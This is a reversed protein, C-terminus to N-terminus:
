DVSANGNADGSKVGIFDPLRFGPILTFTFSNDRSEAPWPQTPDGLTTAGSFFQWSPVGDDGFDPTITLILKRIRIMDLTTLSNSNNVDCALIKYPEMLETGLVQKQMSILDSISVGNNFPNDKAFDMRVESASPMEAPIPVRGDAGTVTTAVFVDDAYFSVAVGAVPEDDDTAVMPSRLQGLADLMMTDTGLPDLWDKLRAGADPGDWALSLRGFYATANDCATSGADGHLQAVVRHNGDLMASGSSGVELTGDTYLLRYHHNPPTTVGNNWNISNGFITAANTSTAFKQIDGRPHHVIASTTPPTGSRDWGMFHLEMDAADEPYLDLLLFDMAQRGALSDCGLISQFSPETVPNTCDDSAYYFDFRWMDYEPTFGDMCHFASLFLLRGDEATNNMLTGSCYGTGEEVVVIIRAVANREAQWDAAEPCAVNDHCANSTGFGFNRANFSEYAEDKYVVDIRWLHFPVTFDDAPAQYEIIAVEGRLIGTMFRDSRGQSERTYAGLVQGSEPQYVFLQAGEPLNFDEYFLLLGRAEPVRIRLQWIQRGDELITWNGHSNIDIDAPQSAAFRNTPAAQEAAQLATIDPGALRLNPAPLLLSPDSIGLPLGGLSKQASLGTTFLLFCFLFHINRRIM